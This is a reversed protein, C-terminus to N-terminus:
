MLTRLVTYIVRFSCRGKTVGDCINELRCLLCLISICTFLFDDIMNRLLLLAKIM